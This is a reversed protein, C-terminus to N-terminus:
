FMKLGCGQVGQHLGAHHDGGHLRRRREGHVLDHGRLRHRRRLHPRLALRRRLRRAGGQLPRHAQAPVQRLM